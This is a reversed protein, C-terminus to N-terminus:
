NSGESRERGSVSAIAAQESVPKENKDELQGGGEEEDGDLVIMEPQKEIRAQKTRFNAFCITMAGTNM